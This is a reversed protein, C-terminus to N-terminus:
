AQPTKTAREHITRERPNARRLSIIRIAGGRRTFTMAHLRDGIRGLALERQEGYDKRLDPAITASDWDFGEAAAFDVGHKAMNARRKADDWDFVM